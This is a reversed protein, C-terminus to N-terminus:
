RVDILAVSEDVESQGDLLKLTLKWTGPMHFDIESIEYVGPASRNIRVPPTLTGCCTMKFHASLIYPPDALPGAVSSKGSEWFRVLMSNNGANNPGTVWQVQASVQTAAFVFEPATAISRGDRAQDHNALPSSCAGCFILFVLKLDKM